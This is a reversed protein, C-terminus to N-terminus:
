LGGRPPWEDVADLVIVATVDLVKSKVEGRRRVHQHASTFSCTVSHVDEPDNDERGGHTRTGVTNPIQFRKLIIHKQRGITKVPMMNPLIPGLPLAKTLKQWLRLSATRLITAMTM